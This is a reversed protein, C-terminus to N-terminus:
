QLSLTIDKFKVASNKKKDIDPYSYQLFASEIYSKPVLCEGYEKLFLTRDRLILPTLTKELKAMGPVVLDSKYKVMPRDMEVLTVLIRHWVVPDDVGSRIYIINNWEDFYVAEDPIPEGSHWRKGMGVAGSRLKASYICSYGRNLEGPTDEDLDLVIKGNADSFRHTFARKKYNALGHDCVILVGEVPLGKTDYCHWTENRDGNCGATALLLSVVMLYLSSFKRHNCRSTNMSSILTSILLLQNEM